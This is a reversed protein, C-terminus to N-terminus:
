IYKCRFEYISNLSANNDISEASGFLVSKRKRRFLATASWKIVKKLKIKWTAASWFTHAYLIHIFMCRLHMFRKSAQVWTCISPQKEFLIFVLIVFTRTKAYMKGVIIVMKINLNCKYSKCNMDLVMCCYM